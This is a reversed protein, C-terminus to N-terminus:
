RSEVSAILSKRTRFGQIDIISIINRFCYNIRGPFDLHRIISMHKYEYTHQTRM